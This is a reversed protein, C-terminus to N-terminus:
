GANAPASKKKGFLKSVNYYVAAIIAVIIFGKAMGFPLGFGGENRRRDGGEPHFDGGGNPPAPRERGDFGRQQGTSSGGASVVGYITGGILTAVAIIVLVRFIVKM